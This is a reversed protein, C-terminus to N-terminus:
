IKNLNKKVKDFLKARNKLFDYLKKYSKYDSHFKPKAKMVNEYESQTFDLKKIFYEKDQHLENEDYIPKKIEKIAEDRSLQGCSILSSLHAKRKDFGFKTPLYHNQIFKTFRSECHKAGYSKWGYDDELIKKAKDKSYEIYDLPRFTKISKIIPYYIFRKYLSFVPYNRLKLSGFKKHIDILHISDNSDYGYSNPLISETTM